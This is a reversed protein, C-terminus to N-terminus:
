APPALRRYIQATVSAGAAVTVLDVMSKLIQTVADATGGDTPLVSILPTALLRLVFGVIGVGLAFLVLIAILRMAQGSTAAWSARARLQRQDVSIAPTVLMLRAYLYVSGLCGLGLLLIGPTGLTFPTEGNEQHAILGTGVGVLAAVAIPLLCFAGILFSWVAYRLARGNLPAIGALREGLVVHRQWKVACALTAISMVLSALGVGGLQAIEGGLDGDRRGLAFTGLLILLVAIALYPWAIRALGGLNGLVDRLAEGVVPLVPLKSESAM